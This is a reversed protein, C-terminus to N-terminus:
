SQGVQFAPETADPRSEASNANSFRTSPSPSRRNLRFQTRQDPLRAPLIQKPTRRADVAFQELEPKLDRLRADGLVYDLSASRWALSPPGKQSVVRRVNGGHIQEHDRGNAESQQVAEHNYPNITSLQDPDVDCWGSPPISRV